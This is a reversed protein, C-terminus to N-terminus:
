GVLPRAELKTEIGALNREIRAFILYLAMFLFGAFAIGAASLFKIASMKSALVRAAEAAEESAVRRQEAGDFDQKAKVAQSWANAHFRLAPWFIVGIKGDKKLQALAPDRLLQCGFRVIDAVWPEGRTDDQSLREIELRLRGLTEIKQQDTQVTVSMEAAKMFEDLCGILQNAENIFRLTTTTQAAPVANAAASGMEKERKEREIRKKEEEILLRKLDEMDVGKQQMTKAPAAPVPTALFNRAAIAVLVFVAVLALSMLVVVIAKFLRLYLEELRGSKKVAGDSMM